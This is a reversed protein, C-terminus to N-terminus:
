AGAAQSHSDVARPKPVYESWKLQCLAFSDGFGIAGVQSRCERALEKHFTKNLLPVLERSAIQRTEAIVKTPPLSVVKRSGGPLLFSGSVVFIKYAM